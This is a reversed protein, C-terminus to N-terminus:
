CKRAYFSKLLELNDTHKEKVEDITKVIACLTKDDAYNNCFTTKPFLYIM